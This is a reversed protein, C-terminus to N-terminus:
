PCCSPSGGCYSMDEYFDHEPYWDIDYDRGCVKCDAHYVIYKGEVRYNLGHPLTDEDPEVPGDPEPSKALRRTSDRFWQDFSQNM